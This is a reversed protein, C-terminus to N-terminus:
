VSCCLWIRLIVILSLLKCSEHMAFQTNGINWKSGYYERGTVTTQLHAIYLLTYGWHTVGFHANRALTQHAVCANQM